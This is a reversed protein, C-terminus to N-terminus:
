PKKASVRGLKRKIKMAGAVTLTSAKEAFLADSARLRDLAQKYIVHDAERRNTNPDAFAIDHIRCALDLPNIRLQGLALRKKM